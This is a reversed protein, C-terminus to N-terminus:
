RQGSGIQNAYSDVVGLSNNKQRPIIEYLYNNGKFIEVYVNDNDIYVKATAGVKDANQQIVDAMKTFDGKALAEYIVFQSQYYIEELAKDRNDRLEMTYKTDGLIEATYSNLERYAQRLNDTKKVHLVVNISTGKEEIVPIKNVLKTESYLKFLPEEVDYKQYLFQVSLLVALTVFVAAIVVYVRLGKIQM